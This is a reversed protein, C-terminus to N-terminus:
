KIKWETLYEEEMDNRDVVRGTWVSLDACVCIAQLFADIERVNILMLVWDIGNLYRFCKDYTNKKIFSLGSVFKQGPKKIDCFLM